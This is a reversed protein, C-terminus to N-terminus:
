RGQPIQIVPMKMTQNQHTEQEQLSAQIVFQGQEAQALEGKVEAALLSV